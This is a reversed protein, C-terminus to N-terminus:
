YLIFCSVCTANYLLATTTLLALKFTVSPKQVTSVVHKIDSLEINKM